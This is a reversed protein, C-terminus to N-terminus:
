VSLHNRAITRVVTWKMPLDNTLCRTLVFVHIVVTSLDLSYVLVEYITCAFSFIDSQKSRPQQDLEPAAWGSYFMQAFSAFESM